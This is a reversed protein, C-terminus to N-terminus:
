IGGGLKCNTFHDEYKIGCEDLKAVIAFYRNFVERSNGVVLYRRTYPSSDHTWHIYYDGTVLNKKVFISIM